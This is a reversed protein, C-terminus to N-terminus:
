SKPNCNDTEGIVLGRRFNRVKLATSEDRIVQLDYAAPFYMYGRSTRVTLKHEQMISSIAKEEFPQHYACAIITLNEQTNLVQQAGILAASEAGEIDMKILCREKEEMQILGAIADITTYDENEQHSVGKNIIIVKEKYPMFTYRLSELWMPDSEVVIMKKCSDINDLAFIGEACGCDIIYDYYDSKIERRYCHPSNDNQEELLSNYYRIIWDDTAGRKMYMRCGNHLIYKLQVKEDFYIELNTMEHNLSFLYNFVRIEHDNIFDLCERIEKNIENPHTRYYHKVQEKEIYSRKEILKGDYGLGEVLQIKIEDFYAESAIVIRDLEMKGKCPTKVEIGFFFTGKKGEDNDWVEVIQFVDYDIWKFLDSAYGGTGFIIIRKM